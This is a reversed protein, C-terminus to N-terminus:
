TSKVKLRGVLGEYNQDFESIGYHDMHAKVASLTTHASVKYDQKDSGGSKEFLEIFCEVQNLQGISMMRADGLRTWLHVVRGFVVSAKLWDGTLAAVCALNGDSHALLEVKSGVERLEKAKQYMTQATDLEKKGLSITGITDYHRALAEAMSSGEIELGEYQSIISRSIKLAEDEQEMERLAWAISGQIDIRTCPASGADSFRSYAERYAVIAQEPAGRTRYVDGRVKHLEAAFKELESEQEGDRKEPLQLLQFGCDIAAMSEDLEGQHYCVRARAKYYRVRKSREAIRGISEGSYVDLIDQIEDLLDMSEELSYEDLRSEAGLLFCTVACDPKDGLKYHRGLLAQEINMNVLSLSHGVSEHIRKRERQVLSDYCVQQFIESQFRYEVAGELVSSGRRHLVGAVRLSQLARQIKYEAILDACVQVMLRDWFVRGVVAARQLLIRQVPSMADLEAQLAGHITPPLVMDEPKESVIAWTGLEADIALLGLAQLSRLHELVYLPRGEAQGVIWEAVWAPVEGAPSLIEQVMRTIFVDELPIMELLGVKSGEFLLRASEQNETNTQMEWCVLTRAKDGQDGLLYRVFEQMSEDALHADAVVLVCVTDEAIAKFLHTLARFLAKRTLNTANGSEHFVDNGAFFNDLLELGAGSITEPGAVALSSSGLLTHIGNGVSEFQTELYSELGQRIPAMFLNVSRTCRGYVIRAGHRESAVRSFETVMRSKGSGLTGAVKVLHATSVSAVTELSDLLLDLEGDRGLFPVAQGEFFDAMDAIKMERERVVYFAQVPKSKGKVDFTGADETVYSNLISRQTNSAVLVRGRECASELRSALNVADGMVTYDRHGQGGVFGAVVMGTNLGVRIELKSGIEKEFRKSLKGVECQLELASRVAREADDGYSRPAGFLAMLCDGIYKDITGGNKVVVDTMADFVTNMIDSVEDPELRESLETFGSIDAFLMTVVRKESAKESGIPLKSIQNNKTPSIFDRAAQGQVGGDAAVGEDNRVLHIGSDGPRVIQQVSAVPVVDSAHESNDFGCGCQDCFSGRAPTPLSCSECIRLPWVPVGCAHCFRANHRINM